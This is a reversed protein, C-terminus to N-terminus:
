RRSGNSTATRTIVLEQEAGIDQSTGIDLIARVLYKGSPLVAAAPLAAAFDGEVSPESELARALLGGWYTSLGTILIRKSGSM